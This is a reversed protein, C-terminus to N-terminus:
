RTNKCSQSLPQRNVKVKKCATHGSPLLRYISRPLLVKPLATDPDVPLIQSAYTCPLEGSGQLSGVVSEGHHSSTEEGAVVRNTRMDTRCFLRGPQSVLRSHLFFIFVFVSLM